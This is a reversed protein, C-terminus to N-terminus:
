IDTDKETYEPSIIAGRKKNIHISISTGEGPASDIQIMGKCDQIIKNVSYLGIGHNEKKEKKTSFGRNFIKDQFETPIGSGNDDVNIRLCSVDSSIFLKIQGGKEISKTAEIANELINGLIITLQSTSLYPDHRPLTSTNELLLDIGQEKAENTKGLILAAITKNQINKIVTNQSTQLSNFHTIYDMALDYEKLQLMGLLIHLENKFNHMNSRLAEVIFRFGTLEEAMNKFTTHDRIIAVAGIIHDGEKMPMFNTILSNTEHTQPVNYEAKGSEIVPLLETCIKLEKLNRGEYNGKPLNFLRCASETCVSINGNTDIAILGEELNDLVKNRRILLNAFSEPEYGMLSKRIRSIIFYSTSVTTALTALVILFYRLIYSRNLNRLTNMYIGVIAYGYIVGSETKISVFACLQKIPRGKNDTGIEIMQTQIKKNNLPLIPIETGVPMGDYHYICIRKTDIITISDITTSNKVINDLYTILRTTAMKSVLADYIIYNEALSTAMNECNSILLQKTRELNTSLITISVFSIAFISIATNVFFIQFFIPRKKLPSALKHIQSKCLNCFKFFNVFM